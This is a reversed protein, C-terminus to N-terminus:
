VLIIASTEEDYVKRKVDKVYQIRRIEGIKERREYALHGVLKLNTFKNQTMYCYPPLVGFMIKELIHNKLIKV